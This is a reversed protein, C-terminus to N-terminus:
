LRRDVAMVIGASLSCYTLLPQSPQSMNKLKVCLLRESKAGRDVHLSRGSSDILFVAGGICRGWETIM